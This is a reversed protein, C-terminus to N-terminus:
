IWRRTNSVYQKYERGFKAKLSKEEPKIQFITMYVIFFLISLSSLPNGYFLTAGTLGFLMGLYMPNRTFKYVGTTVISSAKNPQTPDVTTQHKRFEMIGMLGIIGGIVYFLGGLWKLYAHEFTYYNTLSRIIFLLVIALLFVIVPPIKLSM